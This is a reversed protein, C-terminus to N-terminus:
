GGRKALKAARTKLAVPTFDETAGAPEAMASDPVQADADDDAKRKAPSAKRGLLKELFQRYSYKLEMYSDYKTGSRTVYPLNVSDNAAKTVAAIVAGASTKKKDRQHASFFAYARHFSDVSKAHDLYFKRSDISLDLDCKNLQSKHTEGSTKQLYPLLMKVASHFIKDQAVGESNSPLLHIEKVKGKDGVTYKLKTIKIVKNPDANVRVYGLKALISEDSKCNNDRRLVNGYTSPLRANARTALALTQKIFLVAFKSVGPDKLGFSADLCDKMLQLTTPRKHYKKYMGAHKNLVRMAVLLSQPTAILGSEFKQSRAGTYGTVSRASAIFQEMTLKTHLSLACVDGLNEKDILIKTNQDSKNLLIKAFYIYSALQTKVQDSKERVDPIRIYLTDQVIEIVKTSPEREKTAVKFSNFAASLEEVSLYSTANVTLLMTDVTQRLLLGEDPISGRKFYLNIYYQVNEEIETQSDFANIHNKPDLLVHSLFSSIENRKNVDASFRIEHILAPLRTAKGATTLSYSTM